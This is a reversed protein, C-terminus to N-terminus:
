LDVVYSGAFGEGLPEIDKRSRDLLFRSGEFDKDLGVELAEDTRLGGYVIHVRLHAVM